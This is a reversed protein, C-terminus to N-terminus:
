FKVDKLYEPLNGRNELWNEEADREEIDIDLVELLDERRIEHGEFKLKGNIYLGEWDGSSSRVIVMKQKKM